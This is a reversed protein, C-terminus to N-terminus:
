PIFYSHGLGKEPLKLHCRVDMDERTLILGIDIRKLGTEYTEYNLIKYVFAKKAKPLDKLAQSVRSIDKSTLRNDIQRDIIERGVAYFIDRGSIIQNSPNKKDSNSICEPYQEKNKTRPM